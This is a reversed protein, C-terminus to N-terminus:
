WLQTTYSTGLGTALRKKSSKPERQKRALCDQQQHFGNIKEEIENMQKLLSAEMAALVSGGLSVVHPSQGPELFPVLVLVPDMVGSTPSSGKRGSGTGGRRTLPEQM